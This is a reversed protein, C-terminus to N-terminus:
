TFHTQNAQWVLTVIDVKTNRYNRNNNNDIHVTFQANQICRIHIKHWHSSFTSKSLMEFAIRNELEYALLM